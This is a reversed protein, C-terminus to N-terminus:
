SRTGILPLNGAPMLVSLDTDAPYLWGFLIFWGRRNRELDGALKDLVSSGMGGPTM